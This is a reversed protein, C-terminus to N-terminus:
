DKNNKPRQRNAVLGAVRTFWRGSDRIWREKFMHFDHSADQWVIYVYAFPRPDRKNASADLYMSIRIHWPNISGYAEKFAQLQKAYVSREVRLSKQLLPDVLDFCKEWLDQNFWEYM